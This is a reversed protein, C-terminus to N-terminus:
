QERNIRILARKGIQLFPKEIFRYSIAACLAIAILNLPFVSPHKPNLWLQQWLYISYSLVGILCLPGSNLMRGVFDNPRRMVRDLTAAIAFNLATVGICAWM